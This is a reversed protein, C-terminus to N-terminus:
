IIRGKMDDSPLPVVSVTREAVLEGAQREIAISVIKKARRDSEERAEAEIQRIQRAADHRAEDTMQEVLTRKAEDRTMGATQELKDRVSNLLQDYETRRGE